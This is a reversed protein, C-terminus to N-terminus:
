IKRPQAFIYFDITGANLQDLNAGVSRLNARISTGNSWNEIANNDNDSFITDGPAQDIDHPDVYRDLEGGVGAEVEVNTIGPGAWAAEHKVLIAILKWGAPLIFIEIDDELAAAAFDAFGKSVQVGGLVQYYTAGESTLGGGPVSVDFLDAPQLQGAAPYESIKELAM